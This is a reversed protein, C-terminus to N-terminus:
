QLSITLSQGTKLTPTPTVAPAVAPATNLLGAAKMSQYVQELAGSLSALVSPDSASAPIKGATALQNVLVSAAQLAGQAKLLNLDDKVAQPADSPIPHAKQFLSVISPLFQSVLPIILSAIPIIAAAM